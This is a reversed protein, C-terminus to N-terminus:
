GVAPIETYEPREETGINPLWRVAVFLACLMMALSVVFLPRYGLYQAITGGIVPAIMSVVAAITNSLGVYIPRQDPHAYGVLWNIYCSFLNSGSALGAVLFGIYLVAPGIMGALLACVPLLIVSSLALQIYLLNNRAGLWTYLLAGGVSGITLMAILNPVAVASSLGLETTAFGIYFPDAMMFLSTFMRVFIYSRFPVDDRLVRGLDPLFEALSPIKEVARGGPLEHFFLGPLISLAFIIGSAGFLIAYNNPFAPGNEGLVVGILPAAILMVIGTIAAAMGFMRARWRNDLSTGTLDAWPVGVLGDGFAMISYSIFFALLILNPQDKGLWVTIAAFILMMFRVPINPGVFWWKKNAHGVIYRAIFLQPLPYGIAFMGSALGILIESDTLHRVFDPIVTTAGIIGLGLTFLINDILFYPFNHRYVRERFAPSIENLASDTM